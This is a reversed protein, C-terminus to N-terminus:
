FINFGFGVVQLGSSVDLNMLAQELEFTSALTQLLFFFGYVIKKKEIGGFFVLM